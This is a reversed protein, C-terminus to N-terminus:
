MLKLTTMIMHVYDNIVHVCYQFIQQNCPSPTLMTVSLCEFHIMLELMTMIMVYDNIVYLIPM